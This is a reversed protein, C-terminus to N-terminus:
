ILGHIDPLGSLTVAHQRCADSREKHITSIDHAVVTVAYRSLLSSPCHGLHLLHAANSLSTIAHEPPVFVGAHVKAGAGDNAADDLLLQGLMANLGDKCCQQLTAKYEM